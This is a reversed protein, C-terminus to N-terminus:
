INHELVAAIKTFRPPWHFKHLILRDIWLGLDPDTIRSRDDVFGIGLMWASDPQGESTAICLHKDRGAIVVALRPCLPSVDRRRRHFRCPIPTGSTGRMANLDLVLWMRSSEQDRTIM